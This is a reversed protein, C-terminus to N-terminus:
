DGIVEPGELCKRKPVECGSLICPQGVKGLVSVPFDNGTLLTMRAEAQTTPCICQEKEQVAVPSPIICLFVLQTNTHQSRSRTQTSSTTCNRIIQKTCVYGIKHFQTNNDVTCRLLYTHLCM